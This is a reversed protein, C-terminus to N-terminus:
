RCCGVCPSERRHEAAGPRERLLPCAAGVQHRNPFWFRTRGSSPSSQCCRHAAWAPLWSWPFSTSSMVKGRGPRGKGSSLTNQGLMQRFFQGPVVWYRQKVTQGACLAL